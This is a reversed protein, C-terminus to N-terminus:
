QGAMGGGAMAGAMGGPMAGANGGMQGGAPQGGAQPVGAQQGGGGQQGGGAGGAPPTGPSLNLQPPQKPKGDKYQAWDLGFFVIGTVQALLAILLLGTYADSRAPPKKSSSTDKTRAM